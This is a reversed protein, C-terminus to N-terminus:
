ASLVWAVVQLTCQQIELDKQCLQKLAYTFHLVVSSLRLCGGAFGASRELTSIVVLFLLLREIRILLFRGIDFNVVLSFLLM